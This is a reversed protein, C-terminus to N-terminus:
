FVASMVDNTQADDIGHNETGYFKWAVLFIKLEDVGLSGEVAGSDGEDAVCAEYGDV